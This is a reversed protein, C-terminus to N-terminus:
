VKMKPLSERGADTVECATFTGGPSLRKAESDCTEPPAPVATEAALPHPLDVRVVETAQEPEPIQQVSPLGERVHCDPGCLEFSGLVARDVM